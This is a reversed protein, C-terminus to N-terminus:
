IQRLSRTYDNELEKGLADLALSVAEQCDKGKELVVVRQRGGGEEKDTEWITIRCTVENGYSEISLYYDNELLIQQITEWELIPTLLGFQQWPCYAKHMFVSLDKQSVEEILRIKGMSDICWEGVQPAWSWKIKVRGSDCTDCHLVAGIVVVAGKGKCEPCEWELGELVEVNRPALPMAKKAQEYNM